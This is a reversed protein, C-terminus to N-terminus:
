GGARLAREREIVLGLSDDPPLALDCAVAFAERYRAIDKPRERYISSTLQEFHVIPPDDPHDFSFISFSTGAAPHAGTALPLVRIAVNPLAAVEVLRRLQSAMTAASGMQAVLAAEHIVANIAPAKPRTLLPQRRRRLEIRLAIAAPDDNASGILARAYAETQMLGPLVTSGALHEITAAGDELGFFRASEPPLVGAYDHWWARRRADRALNLLRDREEGHLGYVDLLDRVDRIQAGVIGTEIRSIKGPSCELHRAVQEITKDAGTRLRRLEFALRRREVAPSTGDAVM